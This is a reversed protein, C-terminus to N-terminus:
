PTGGPPHFDVLAWTNFSAELAVQDDAGLEAVFARLESPTTAIRRRRLPRGPELIAAEAFHKHVDLGVTRM